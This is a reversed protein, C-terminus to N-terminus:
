SIKDSLKILVQLYLWINNKTNESMSVWYRKLNMISNFSNEIGRVEVNKINNYDRKLFFNEDKNMIQEKFQYIYEKFYILLKKPNTKKLLFITNKAFAIDLDKPYLERLENIFNNGQPIYLKIDEYLDKLKFYYSFQFLIDQLFHGHHEGYKHSIFIINDKGFGSPKNIVNFNAITCNKIVKVRKITQFNECQSINSIYRM